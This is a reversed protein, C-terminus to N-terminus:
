QIVGQPNAHGYADASAMQGQQQMPQNSSIQHALDTLSQTNMSELQDQSANQTELKDILWQLAQYPLRVRKPIKTPDAANPVYLDAAVLAGGIPIFEDEAAKLAAAKQEQYQSHEAQKQEYVAQIQAPLMHYDAQKMRNAYRTLAYEHNDNPYVTPNEGREISLFENKVSDADITLDSFDDEWNAFPINKLIKGLSSPDLQQGVYQLINNFTLQRGLRTEITEEQPEVVIMDKLPKSNKFESINIYDATGVARILANDPLYERALDLYLFCIDMFAQELKETYPSFKKHQSMSRFLLAYPDLNSQEESNVEEIMLARDMEVIQDKIYGMYQGGDRGALIQPPAGQYTIGRVGPLLAGPALKTGNQHIIKDDGLTTQHLAVASSARNIEAQYPRGIKIMSRGRPSGQYTDFGAWVLPWIGFPLVAEEMKETGCVMYFYGEPYEQSPRYFFSKLHVQTKDSKGYSSTNADFIVFKDASAGEIAALKKPDSGYRIVMDKKSVFEDVIWCPSEKMSDCGPHRKLNYGYIRKFKFDGSFIPQEEDAIPSGDEDYQPVGDVHKHAYGQFDGLNPDYTLLCCLEGIDVYDGTLERFFEKLRYEIKADQWVALALEATKQDQLETAKQPKITVGPVYSMLNTKYYRSARYIHNKTLRLKQQEENVRNDRTRANYYRARKDYHDGAVLLINSRMEAMIPKDITDAETYLKNLEEASKVKMLLMKKPM